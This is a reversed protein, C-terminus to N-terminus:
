YFYPMRLMSRSAIIPFRGCSEEAPGADNCTEPSVLENMWLCKQSVTFKGAIAGPVGLLRWYSLGTIRSHQTLTREQRLVPRITEYRALADRAEEFM